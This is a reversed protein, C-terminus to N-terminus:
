RDLIDLTLKDHFVCKGVVSSDYKKHCQPCSAVIPEVKSKSLCCGM